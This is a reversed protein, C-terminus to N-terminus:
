LEKDSYFIIDKTNFTQEQYLGDTTFWFCKIGQLFGKKEDLESPRVMKTEKGKVIMVPASRIHKITVVDGPLFYIKDSEMM